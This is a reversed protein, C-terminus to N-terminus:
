ALMLAPVMAVNSEGSEGAQNVATVTLEAGPDLGELVTETGTVTRLYRSESEGPLRVFVRYHNARVSHQWGLLHVNGESRLTLGSPIAPIRTESPLQFGFTLWRPDDDTFSADLAGRV